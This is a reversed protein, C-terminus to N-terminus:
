SRPLSHTNLVVYFFIHLQSTYTYIFMYKYEYATTTMYAPIINFTCALYTIDTVIQILRIYTHQEYNM